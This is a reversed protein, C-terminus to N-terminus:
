VDGEREKYRYVVVIKWCEIGCKISRVQNVINFALQIQRTISSLQKSISQAEYDANKEDDAERNDSPCVFLATLDQMQFLLKWLPSLEGGFDVLFPLQHACVLMERVGSVHKFFEVPVSLSRTSTGDHQQKPRMDWLGTLKGRKIRVSAEPDRGCIDSSSCSRSSGKKEKKKRTPGTKIKIKQVRVAVKKEESVVRYMEHRLYTWSKSSWTRDWDGVFPNGFLSLVQLNKFKTVTRPISQLRNRDLFLHSLTTKLFIIESPMSILQNCSLNFIKLEQLSSCHFEPPVELRNHSMDLSTLYKLQNLVKPFTRFSNHSLCLSTLTPALCNIESPVDTILLGRLVLTHLSSFSSFSLSKVPIRQDKDCTSSKTISISQVHRTQAPSWSQIKIAFKAVDSVGQCSLTVRTRNNNGPNTTSSTSSRHNISNNNPTGCSENLVSTLHTERLRRIRREELQQPTARSRKSGHYLLDTTQELPDDNQSSSSSPPPPKTASTVPTTSSTTSTTPLPKAGFLLDLTTELPDEDDNPDM